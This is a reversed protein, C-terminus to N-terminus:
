KKGGPLVAELAAGMIEAATGDQVVSEMDEIARTWGTRRHGKTQEGKGGKVKAAYSATNELTAGFAPAQRINWRRNLTESRRVLQGAGTYLGEGRVYYWGGPKRRPAPPYPATRDHGEAAIGMAGAEIAPRLPSLLGHVLEEAGELETSLLDSM